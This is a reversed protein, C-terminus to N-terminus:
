DTLSLQSYYHHFLCFLLWFVWKLLIYDTFSKEFCSMRNVCRSTQKTGSEMNCIICWRWKDQAHQVPSSSLGSQFCIHSCFNSPYLHTFIQNSKAKDTIINEIWLGFCMFRCIIFIEWHMMFVHELGNWFSGFIVSVCVLALFPVMDLCRCGWNIKIFKNIVNADTGCSWWESYM